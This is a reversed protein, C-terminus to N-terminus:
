EHGFQVTLNPECSVYNVKERKKEREEGKMQERKGHM